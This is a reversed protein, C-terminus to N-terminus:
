LIYNTVLSIAFGVGILVLSLYVLVAKQTKFPLDGSQIFLLLEKRWTVGTYVLYVTLVFHIVYRIRWNWTAFDFSFWVLLLVLTWFALHVLSRRLAKKDSRAQFKMFFLILPGSLLHVILGLKIASKPVTGFFHFCSVGVRVVLCLLLGGLFYDALQHDAKFVILYVALLCANFVGLASFFFLLNEAM